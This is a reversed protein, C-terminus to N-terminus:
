SINMLERKECMWYCIKVYIQQKSFYDGSHAKFTMELFFVKYNLEHTTSHLYLTTFHINRMGHPVIRKQLLM